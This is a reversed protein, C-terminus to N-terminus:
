AIGARGTTPGTVSEDLVPGDGHVRFWKTIIIKHGRTVPEGCHKTAINPTGDPNLNNWLLAMGKRPRVAIDLETFRTAGGEMDDNLYIMFTWTRNGRVGGFRRFADSGPEFADWHPKFQQGVDYRQAQIGESYAARIGLTRCIKADVARAAPSKLHGIYATTSNRFERAPDDNESVTSPKLHHGALAVLRACEADGLFDELTYLDVKPNELRRLNPPARRILPLSQMAGNALANGRPRVAEFGMIIAAESYGHKRLEAVAAGIDAGLLLRERLWALAKADLRRDPM